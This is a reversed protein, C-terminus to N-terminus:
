AHLPRWRLPGRRARRGGGRGLRGADELDGPGEGLIALELRDALLDGDAVRDRADGLEEAGREEVLVLDALQEPDVHCADVQVQLALEVLRRGLDRERVLGDLGPERGRRRLPRLPAAAVARSRGRRPSSPM